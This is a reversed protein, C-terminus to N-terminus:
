KVSPARLFWLEYPTKDSNVRIQVRNLIYITTNVAERWYGDSLKEENLM